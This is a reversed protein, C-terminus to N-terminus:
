GTKRPKDLLIMSSKASDKAAERLWVRRVLKRTRDPLSREVESWEVTGELHAYRQTSRLSGHGLWDRVRYIPVDAQVQWSACTHRLAHPGYPTLGARKTARRVFRKTADYQWRGSVRRIIRALEPPCRQYLPTKTKQVTLALVGGRLMSPHLTCFDSVRLGTLLLVDLADCEAGSCNEHVIAYEPCTLWSFRKSPGRQGAVPRTAALQAVVRLRIEEREAQKATGTFRRRIRASGRGAMYFDILWNDHGLSRIM